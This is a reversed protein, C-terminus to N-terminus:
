RPPSSTSSFIHVSRLDDRVVLTRLLPLEVTQRAALLSTERTNAPLPDRLRLTELRKTFSLGDLISGVDLCVNDPDSSSRFSVQLLDVERLSSQM